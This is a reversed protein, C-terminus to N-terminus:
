NFLHGPLKDNIIYAIVGIGIGAIIGSFVLVPYYIFLRLNSVVSAAVLLQGFNHTVAAAMSVGVMSFRDSKKLLWMVVLSLIGGSASYLMAFVGSFLFGSLFIRILNITMAYKFNMNYLALIIVLNALGLKIGPIGLNIPLLVEVYTFILALTAFMASVTLRKTRISRNEKKARNLNQHSSLNRHERHAKESKQSAGCLHSGVTKKNRFPMM